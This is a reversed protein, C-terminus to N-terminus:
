ILMQLSTSYKSKDSENEILFSSSTECYRIYNSARVKVDHPLASTRTILDDRFSRTTGLLTKRAFPYLEKTGLM